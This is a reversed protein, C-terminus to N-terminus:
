GQWPKATASVHVFHDVSNTKLVARASKQASYNDENTAWASSIIGVAQPGSQDIIQYLEDASAELAEQWSIPYFQKNIRKLPQTLRDGSTIAYASAVVLVAFHVSLILSILLCAEVKLYETRFALIDSLAPANKDPNNSVKLWIPNHQTQRPELKNEPVSWARFIQNQHKKALLAQQVLM